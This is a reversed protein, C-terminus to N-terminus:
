TSIQFLGLEVGRRPGRDKCHSAFAAQSSPLCLLAVAVAGKFKVLAQPQKLIPLRDFIWQSLLQLIRALLAWSLILGWFNIVRSPINGFRRLVRFEAIIGLFIISGCAATAFVAYIFNRAHDRPLRTLLQTSTVLLAVKLIGVVIKPRFVPVVNICAGIIVAFRNAEKPADSLRPFNFSGWKLARTSGFLWRSIFADNRIFIRNRVCVPMTLHM